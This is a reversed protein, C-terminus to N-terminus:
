EVNFIADALRKAFATRNKGSLSPLPITARVATIGRGGDVLVCQAGDARMDISLQFRADEQGIIFGSRKLTAGIKKAIRVSAASDKENGSISVVLNLPLRIGRQRLAGRNLAFLREAADRAAEEKGRRRSIREYEAWAEALLDREWVPDLRTIASMLREPDAFLRGEELDYGPEAKPIRASEIARAEALYRRARGPYAQFANYYNILAELQQGEIDYARAVVLSYRRFLALHGMARLRYMGFRVLGMAADLPGTRPTAIETAALGEYVATLIEHLERRHQDINTGYNLMWSVDHASLTGEAYARAEKLRGALRYAEAINIKSLPSIDLEYAKTYEAFAKTLELRKVFLEGRALHGSAREAAALSLGTRDFAEAYRHHRSELISLNYHAVATFTKAGNADADAIAELYQQKSLEYEFLDSYITGLTMSFGRDSGLRAIADQLFHEGDRLRHLKFYMWGLDGIAERDNPRLAVVRELYAASDADFNLRGAATSLRYLLTPEDPTLKEATKYQEWALRYLAREAYLDGLDLPFRVDDTYSLAGKRYLEVARDWREARVAEEAEAHLIDAPASSVQAEAAEDSALALALVILISLLGTKNKRNGAPLTAALPPVFWALLRRPLSVKGTYASAFARYATKMAVADEDTFTPAFRARTFSELVPLVGLSLAEDLRTGFAGLTEDPHRRYGALALRTFVQRALLIASLRPRSTFASYLYHGARLLISLITWCLIALFPWTRALFSAAIRAVAPLFRSPAAVDDPSRVSLRDRNELIERMLREFLESDVGSSFRFEEGEALSETTPDYEIWGFRPFYVEVWAHAMDSRVPFYDFAGTSPDIFFGVAVRAPIGLSRLLLTMSFAFYSCYGKKADFLFRGLQDGDAAIGPKLSYRFEGYKLREYIAQTRDWYGEVGDIMSLALAAIREDGGYETYRRYDTENMGVLAPSPPGVVSDMLEFPFADSTESEVSYASSFSSADWTQFPVVRMPRNIAIFATPDFNVLYLDQATTKTEQLESGPFETPANPLREPHAAEDYAADRFFGRKRDYGSLVFRRLLIHPDDEDKRVILVLDDSLSIESELRLFQSFDFRLLNPKILGGGSDVAGEEFPRILFAATLLTIVAVTAASGTKERRSTPTPVSGLLVLFQLLSIITFATVLIIPREYLPLGKSPTFAFLTLYLATDAVQEWRMFRRSLSSFYATGAAWLFPLLAVLLNRDFYLLRSDGAIQHEGLTLAGSVVAARVLLPLSAFALFAPIARLRFRSALLGLAVALIFAISFFADDALEGSVLRIQYLAAFSTITRLLFPGPEPRREIPM